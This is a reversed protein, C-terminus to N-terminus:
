INSYEYFSNKKSTLFNEVFTPNINKFCTAESILTSLEHDEILENFSPNDLAMNLDGMLLINDHTLWHFTFIHPQVKAIQFSSVNKM